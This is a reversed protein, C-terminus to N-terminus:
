HVTVPFRVWIKQKSPLHGVMPSNGCEPYINDDNKHFILTSGIPSSGMVGPEYSGHEVLQALSAYKNIFILQEIRRYFRKRLYM